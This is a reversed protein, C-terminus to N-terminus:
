RGTPDLIAGFILGHRAFSPYGMPGTQYWTDLNVEPPRQFSKQNIKIFDHVSTNTNSDFRYRSNDPHDIGLLHGVEHVMVGEFHFCNFHASHTGTHDVGAGMGPCARVLCAEVGTEKVWCGIACAMILDDNHKKMAQAKGNNWIFTEM